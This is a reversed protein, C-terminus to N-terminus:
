GGKVLLPVLDPAHLNATAEAVIPVGLKILNPTLSAAEEPHLGGAIVVLGARESLFHELVEQMTPDVTKPAPTPTDWASFDVGTTECRLPEDFCINFHIPKRGASKPWVVDYAHGELDLTREAYVGFLGVQEIAQPAGSGRYRSPRDATIVILPHGQYCAEIVSPLLEAAATGSTTVVAVPQRTAMIRGLAFFGASREEFFNWLRLGQSALLASILPVNRAGAAVCVERVGLQALHLLLTQALDSNM